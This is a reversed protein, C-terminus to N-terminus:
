RRADPHDRRRLREPRGSEVRGSAPRASVSAEANRREPRDIIKRGYIETVHAAATSCRSCWRATSTSTGARGTSARHAGAPRPHRGRGQAAQQAVAPGAHPQRLRAQLARDARSADARAGAFLGAGRAVAELDPSLLGIVQDMLAQDDADMSVPPPLARVTTHKVAGTRSRDWLGRAAVRGCPPLEGREEEDDLRHPRRGGRLRLLPVPEQGADGDAVAHRGRPVPVAGILDRGRKELKIGSAEILRAVSVEAKLRELELEPIRAM